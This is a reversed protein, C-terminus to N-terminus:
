DELLKKSMGEFPVSFVIKRVVAKVESRDIKITNNPDLVNGNRLKSVTRKGIVIPLMCSGRLRFQGHPLLGIYQVAAELHSETIDLYKDYLPKFQGMNRPDLLDDPTLGHEVLSIMPIYCRGLSLDSPIDRLINIMQLAKGFRVGRDFLEDETEPNAKFQHDLSMRTWFEGVSGAVRFTYDDLELDDDLSSITDSPSSFRELDMIQGSIIIGLCHRISEQDSDSFQGIRSTVAEISELLRRESPNTQLKALETLDPARDSTKQSYRDYAELSALRKQPDGAESDAITDSTRALLYLLSVQQRIPKPLEKLSLYFSRSTGELISDLESDFITPM